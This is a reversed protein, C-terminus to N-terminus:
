GEDYVRQILFARIKGTQIVFLITQNCINAVYIDQIEGGAALYGDDGSLALSINQPQDAFARDICYIDNQWHASIIFLNLPCCYALAGPQLNFKFEFERKVTEHASGYVRYVHAKQKGKEWSLVYIENDPTRIVDYIKGPIAEFPDAGMEWWLSYRVLLQRSLDSSNTQLIDMPVVRQGTDRYRIEDGNATETKFTKLIKEEIGTRHSIYIYPGSSVAKDINSFHFEQDIPAIDKLLQIDRTAETSFVLEDKDTKLFTRTVKLSSDDHWLLDIAAEAFREIGIIRNAVNIRDIFPLSLSEIRYLGDM